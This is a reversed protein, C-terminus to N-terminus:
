GNKRQEIAKIADDLSEAIRLIELIELREVKLLANVLMQLEHATMGTDEQM